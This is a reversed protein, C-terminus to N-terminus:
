EGLSSRRQNHRNTDDILAKIVLGTVCKYIHLNEARNLTSVAPAQIFKTEETPLLRSGTWCTQIVIFLAEQFTFRNAAIFISGPSSDNQIQKKKENRKKYSFVLQTSKLKLYTGYPIM